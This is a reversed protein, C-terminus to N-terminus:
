AADGAAPPAPSDLNLCMGNGATGNTGTDAECFDLADTFLSGSVSSNHGTIGGWSYSQNVQGLASAADALEEIIGDRFATLGLTLGMLVIASVLVAETSAVYGGEDQWLRQVLNKM